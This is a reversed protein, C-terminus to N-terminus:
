SVAGTETTTTTDVQVVDHYSRRANFAREAAAPIHVIRYNVPGFTRVATYHEGSTAAVGLAAAVRDVEVRCAGEDTDTNGRTFLTIDTDYRGPAPVQPHSELFDALQRLGAVAAARDGFALFRYSTGM